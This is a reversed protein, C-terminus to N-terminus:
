EWVCVCVFVLGVQMFRFALFLSFRLVQDAFDIERGRSGKDLGIQFFKEILCLYMKM